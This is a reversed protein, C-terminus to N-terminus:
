ETIQIKDTHIEEGIKVTLIYIGTPFDGVYLTTEGNGENAQASAQKMLQGNMNYVAWTLDQNQNSNYRIHLYDKAPNPFLVYANETEFGAKEFSLGDTDSLYIDTEEGEEMRSAGSPLTTFNVQASINGTTNNSCATEVRVNYATGAALGSVTLTTPAYSGRWTWYADTAKKVYIRYFSVGTIAPLNLNFSTATIGSIAPTAPNACNPTAFSQVINITHTEGCPGTLTIKGTRTASTTNTTTRFTLSTTAASGSTTVPTIWAADDSVTFSGTATMSMTYTANYTGPYFTAVSSFTVQPKQTVTITRLRGNGKVTVTGTRSAGTTNATASVTFTTGGTGSTKSTTIWSANDSIQWGDSAGCSITIAASVTAGYCFNLTSASLTLNKPTNIIVGQQDNFFSSGPTLDDVSFYGNSSGDWGWNMHFNNSADYGDCVWAHGTNQASNRGRYLIPRAADLNTKLLTQWNALTYSSRNLFGTNTYYFYNTFCTAATPTNAGSSWPAYDMSVSYGCHQMLRGIAQRQALPSASNITAPMNAWNYTTTGFNASLTGYSAQTINGNNDTNAAEAYSFSGLGYAPHNHYRMVQAMATAVCGTIAKSAGTGPCYYNYSPSASSGQGWNTTLLPSVSTVAETGMNGGNEPNYASKNAAKFANKDFNADAFMQWAEAIKEAPKFTPHNRKLDLLQRQYQEVWYMFNTNEIDFNAGENIGYGLIPQAKLENAIIVFSHQNITYLYVLEENDMKGVYTEQINLQRRSTASEDQTLYFNAAVMKATERGVSQAKAFFPSFLCTFAIASFIIRKM